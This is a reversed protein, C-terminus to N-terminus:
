ITPARAANFFEQSDQSRDVEYRHFRLQPQIHDEHWM